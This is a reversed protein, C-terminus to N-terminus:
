GAWLETANTISALPGHNKLANDGALLVRDIGRSRLLPDLETGAFASISRKTIM